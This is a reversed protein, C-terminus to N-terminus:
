LLMNILIFTNQITIGPLITPTNCGRLGYNQIFLTILNKLCHDNENICTFVVPLTGTCAMFAYLPFLPIAGSM